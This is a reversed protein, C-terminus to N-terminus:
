KTSATKPIVTINVVRSSSVDATGTRCSTQGPKLGTLVLENQTASVTRLKADVITGDDCVLGVNLGVNLVEQQGVQLKVNTGSSVPSSQPPTKQAPQASQTPLSQTPLSQPPNLSQSPLGQPPNLDQSPRNQPQDLSQSPLSQTPLNQPPNVSQTPLNQQQNLNQTPLSQQQAMAPGTALLAGVLACLTRELRLEM